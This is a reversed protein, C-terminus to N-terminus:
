ISSTVSPYAPELLQRGQGLTEWSDRAKDQLTRPFDARTGGSIAERRLVGRNRVRMLVLVSTELRRRLLTGIEQIAECCGGSQRSLEDKEGHAQRSPRASPAVESALAWEESGHTSRVGVGAAIAAGGLVTAAVANTSDGTKPLGGSGTSGGNGADGQLEGDHGRGHQHRHIRHPGRREQDADQRRARHEHCLGRVGPRGSRRQRRECRRQRSARDGPFRRSPRRSGARPRREAWSTRRIASTSSTSSATRPRTWPPRSSCACSFTWSRSSSPKVRPPM